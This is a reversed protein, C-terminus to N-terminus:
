SPGGHPFLAHRVARLFGACDYADFEQCWQRKRADPRIEHALGSDRVGVNSPSVAHVRVKLELGTDRRCFPCVFEFLAPGLTVTVVRSESV